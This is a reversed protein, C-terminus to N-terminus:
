KKCCTKMCLLYVFIKRECCYERSIISWIFFREKSYYKSTTRTKCIGEMIYVLAKDMVAYDKIATVRDLKQGAIDVLVSTVWTHVGIVHVEICYFENEIKMCFFMRYINPVYHSIIIHFTFIPFNFSLSKEKKEKTKMKKIQYEVCWLACYKCLMKWCIFLVVKYKLM